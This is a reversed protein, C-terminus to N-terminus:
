ENNEEILEWHYGGCTHQKGQCCNSIGNRYTTKGFVSRAADTISKYIVGTEMCRVAFHRRKEKELGSGYTKTKKGEKVYKWKYGYATKRIGKCVDSIHSTMGPHHTADTQKCIWQIAQNISNFTQLANGELSLMQIKNASVEKSQQQTPTDINHCRLATRVTDESIHLKRATERESRCKLFVDVVEKYDIYQKGDGGLTANYGFHYTNYFKIFYQEKENIEENSCNAIEEICFNEIGYKNMARYLPRNEYSKRKYARKHEKWREEITKLTKGIYKKNNIKNTIM